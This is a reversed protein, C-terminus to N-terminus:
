HEAQELFDEFVEAEILIRTDFLYSKEYDEKAACLISVAQEMIERKYIENLIKLFEKYYISEIGFVKELLYISNIKWKVTRDDLVESDNPEIIFITFDSNKSIFKNLIETSQELLESFRGIIRSDVKM